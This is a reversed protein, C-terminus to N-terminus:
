ISYIIWVYGRNVLTSRHTGFEGVFSTAAPNTQLYITGADVIWGGQVVFGTPFNTGDLNTQDNVQDIDGYIKVALVSTNAPCSLTKQADTFMDWGGIALRDIRYGAGSPTIFGDQWGKVGNEDTGYVKSAGPTDEDGVLKLLQDTDVVLSDKVGTGFAPIEELISQPRNPM